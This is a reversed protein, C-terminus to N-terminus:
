RKRRETTTTPYKTEFFLPASVVDSGGPLNAVAAAYSTQNLTQEEVPYNFRIPFSSIATPPALLIPYHMRRVFTWGEFGRMYYAIWQQLGIKRVFNGTGSYAVSPQALYTAAQAATGGWYEISATVANAYHTAASVSDPSGGPIGRAYAEALLFEVESYEFITAPYTATGIVPNYTSLTYYNSGAGIPGGAYALSDDSTDAVQTFYFPLRPDTLNVMSDIITVGAVFDTRGSATQDEFIPNTNPPASLYHLTANESNSQILNPLNNVANKIINAAISKANADQANYLVMAMRLQLSNAFKIWCTVDGESNSGYVNDATLFGSNAPNLKTIDASLRAICDEYVLEANDYMPLVNKPNLAQSHLQPNLAGAYPIDGFTEVLVSWTYVSLIDIIALKNPKNPDIKIATEEANKAAQLNELVNLYLWNWHNDPIARDSLYYNSEQTYTDEQWYQDILKWINQNVSSTVMQDFLNKQAYPFLSEGTSIVPDKTDKNLDSLKKCSTFVVLVILIAIIKKM